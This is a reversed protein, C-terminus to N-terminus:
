LRYKEAQASVREVSQRNSTARCLDIERSVLKGCLLRGCKLVQFRLRPYRSLLQPEIGYQCETGSHYNEAVMQGSNGILVERMHMM